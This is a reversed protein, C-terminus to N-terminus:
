YLKECLEDGWLGVFLTGKAAIIRLADRKKRTIHFLGGAYIFVVDPKFDAVMAELIIFPDANVALQNLGHERAWHCLLGIDPYLIDQVECGQVEVTDAWGGPLMLNEKRLADVQDSFNKKHLNHLERFKKLNGPAPTIRLIRM